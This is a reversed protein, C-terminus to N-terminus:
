AQQEERTFVWNSGQSLEENYFYGEVDFAKLDEPNQLHNKLLFAAMSGRAKKAFFSIMKYKGNKMDRFEPTIIEANLKKQNVAKFYENSALNILYQDEQEELATNLLATIRDGWFAYLNKGRRNSLPIKMELRYPQILDLPKLLGYLGSLIRLHQQAFNLQSEDFSEIELGTYVDGKFAMVAQKANAPTFPTHYEQYRQVNLEAIQESVDMLQMLKKKSKKRLLEVLRASHDLLEPQSYQAHFGPDSFDQTKAPSIIALMANQNPRLAPSCGQM